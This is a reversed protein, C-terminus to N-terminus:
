VLKSEHLKEQIFVLKATSKWFKKKGKKLSNPKNFTDSKSKIYDLGLGFQYVHSAWYKIM